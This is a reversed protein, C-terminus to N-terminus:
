AIVTGALYRQMASIERPTEGTLHSVQTAATTGSEIDVATVNVIGNSDCRITVRVKQGPPRNSPLGVLVFDGVPRAASLDDSEGQYVTVKIATQNPNVTVFERSREVPIATNRPILISLFSQTTGPYRAEIGLSHSTIDRVDIALPGAVIQEEIAPPLEEIKTEHMKKAAFVAAGLAVAEDPNVSTDPPRGFYAHIAARIAPIRTSGGILLVRDIDKPQLKAAALAARLVTLTNQIKAEILQAFADRSLEIRSMRGNARLPFSTKPRTSLEWKAQEALKRMDGRVVADMTPDFGHESEFRKAAYLMIQDDFDKGGLQHDGDTALVTIEKGQIHMITVDFTGGGLDYVLVKEDAVENLVGFAIAAATPENLLELVRLGAIEGANKTLRRRVEDFYAPVTIVAYPLPRGLYGEADQRLKKLIIGSIEPAKLSRGHHDYHLDNGMQRKIFDVAQEPAYVAKEKALKGVLIGDDDFYVVSPTLRENEANPVIEPRGQDNVIAVLSYTTGLDIGIASLGSM